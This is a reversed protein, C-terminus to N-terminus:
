ALKDGLATGQSWYLEPGSESTFPQCDCIWKLGDFFLFDPPCDMPLSM